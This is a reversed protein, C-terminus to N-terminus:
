GRPIAWGAPASVAARAAGSMTKAPRNVSVPKAKSRDSSRTVVCGSPISVTVLAVFRDETGRPHQCRRAAAKPAGVPPRVEAAGDAQRVEARTAIRWGGPSNRECVRWDGACRSTTSSIRVKSSRSQSRRKRGPLCSLRRRSTRQGTTFSAIGAENHRHVWDLATERELAAARAGDPGISGALVLALRANGTDGSRRRGAGGWVACLGRM